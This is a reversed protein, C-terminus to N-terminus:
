PQDLVMVTQFLHPMLMPPPPMLMPPSPMLMPPMLMPPPPMLMSQLGYATEFM